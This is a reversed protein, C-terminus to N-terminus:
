TKGESHLCLGSQYDYFYNYSSRYGRRGGTSYDHYISYEAEKGAIEETRKIRASPLTHNERDLDTVHLKYKDPAIAELKAYLTRWKEVLAIATDTDKLFDKCRQCLDGEKGEFERESKCSCRVYSNAKDFKTTEIRSMGYKQMEEVLRELARTKKKACAEVVVDFSVMSTNDIVDKTTAM